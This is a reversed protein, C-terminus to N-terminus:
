DQEGFHQVVVERLLREILREGVPFQGFQGKLPEAVPHDPMGAFPVRCYAIEDIYRAAARDLLVRHKAALWLLNGIL